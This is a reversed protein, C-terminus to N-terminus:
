QRVFTIELTPDATSIQVYPGLGVLIINFVGLILKFQKYINWIDEAYVLDPDTLGFDLMKKSKIHGSYSALTPGIYIYIYIYIPLSTLFYTVLYDTISSPINM